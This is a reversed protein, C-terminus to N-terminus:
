RGFKYGIVDIFAGGSNPGLYWYSITGSSSVAFETGFSTMPNVQFASASAPFDSNAVVYSVSSDNNIFRSTISTVTVPAALTLPISTSTTASGSTLIRGTFGANTMWFLQNESVMRFNRVAGSDFRVSGIYRRSTDGQKTRAFGAYPASPATLSVEVAPQGSSNQYIYLHGWSSGSVSSVNVNVASQLSIPSLLSPIWASGPSISITSPSVYGMVLGSINEPSLHGFLNATMDNVKQWASKTPEGMKGNPQPTTLDIEQRAM